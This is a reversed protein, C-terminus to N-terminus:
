ESIFKVAEKTVLRLLANALGIGTLAAGIALEGQIYQLLGLGVTVIAVWLTKSKYWLKANTEAMLNM